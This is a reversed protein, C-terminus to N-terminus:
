ADRHLPEQGRLRGAAERVPAPLTPSSHVLRLDSGNLFGLLRVSLETPTSPNLILSRKV